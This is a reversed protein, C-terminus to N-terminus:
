IPSGEVGKPLSPTDFALQSSGASRLNLYFDQCDTDYAIM